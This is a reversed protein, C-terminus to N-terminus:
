RGASSRARSRGSDDQGSRCQQAAFVLCLTPVLYGKFLRQALTYNRMATFRLVALAPLRRLFPLASRWASSLSIGFAFLLAIPITSGLGNSQRSHFVPKDGCLQSKGSARRIANDLGRRCDRFRGYFPDHWLLLWARRRDRPELLDLIQRVTNWMNLPRHTPKKMMPCHRSMELAVATRTFGVSCLLIARQSLTALGGRCRVSTIARQDACGHLEAAGARSRARLPQGVEGM